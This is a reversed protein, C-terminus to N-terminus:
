QRRLVLIELVHAEANLMKVHTRSTFNLDLSQLVLEKSLMM